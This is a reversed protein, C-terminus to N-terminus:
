CIQTAPWPVVGSIILLMDTDIKLRRSYRALLPLILNKSTSRKVGENSPLKRVWCKVLDKPPDV